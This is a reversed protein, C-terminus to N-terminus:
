RLLRVSVPDAVGPHLRAAASIRPVPVCTRRVVPVAAACGGGDGSVFGVRAM